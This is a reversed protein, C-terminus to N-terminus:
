ARPERELDLIVTSTPFPLEDDPMNTKNVSRVDHVTALRSQPVRSRGINGM